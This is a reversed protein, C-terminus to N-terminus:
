PTESKALRAIFHDVECIRQTVLSIEENVAAILAVVLNELHGVAHTRQVRTGRVLLLEQDVTILMLHWANDNKAWALWLNEMVQVRAPVPFHMELLQQEAAIIRQNLDDTAANLMAIQKKAAAM